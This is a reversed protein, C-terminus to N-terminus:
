SASRNKIFRRTGDIYDRITSRVKDNWEHRTWDGALQMRRAYRALEAASKRIESETMM